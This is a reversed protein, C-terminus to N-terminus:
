LQKLRVKNGSVSIVKFKTRRDFLIEKEENNYRRLDKGTKSEITIEISHDYSGKGFKRSVLSKNTGTSVFSKEEIANGVNSKYYGLLADYQRKGSKGDFGIGRYVEGQYNDLKKLAASVKNALLGSDAVGEGTRLYKNVSTYANSLYAVLYTKETENLKKMDSYDYDERESEYRKMGVSIFWDSSNALRGFDNSNPSTSRSSGGGKAM